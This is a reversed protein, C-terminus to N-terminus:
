PTVSGKVDMIHKTEKVHEIAKDEQETTFGCGCSYRYYIKVMKMEGKRITTYHQM